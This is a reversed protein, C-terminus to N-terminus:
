LETKERIVCIDLIALKKSADRYSPTDTQKDTQRDMQRDTLGDRSGDKPGDTPGYTPEDTQLWNEKM